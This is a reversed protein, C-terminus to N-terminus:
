DELFAEAIRIDKPTTIKINRTDGAVVFVANGMKEVLFAEDTGNYNNKDVNELAKRLIGHDYGQPTQVRFLKKRDVTCLIKEGEVRKITDVVPIVPIAAGKERTKDIVRDILDPNVLPRVGDHVLVIDATDPDILGFGAKVSDQREKGGGIVASIKRYKDLYQQGQEKDNLVLIIESINKHTEFTELCRDLVTKGKLMATQKSSGYRKGEGAAVIIASIRSM